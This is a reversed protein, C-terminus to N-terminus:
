PRSPGTAGTPGTPTFAQTIPGVPGSARVCARTAPAFWLKMDSPLEREFSAYSAVFRTALDGLNWVYHNTRRAALHNLQANLDDREQTTLFSRATWGPVYHGAVVTDDRPRTIMFFDDLIRFHILPAEILARRTAEPPASTLGLRLATVETIQALTTEVEYCYEGAMRELETADAPNWTYHIRPM